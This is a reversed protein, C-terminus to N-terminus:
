ELKKLKNLYPTFGLIISENLPGGTMDTGASRATVSLGPEASKNEAVFTVLKEVDKKNKPYVVVQPKVEFLSTDRSYKKLTEGDDYVDGTIIKELEVKLNM